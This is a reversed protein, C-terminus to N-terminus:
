KLNEPYTLYSILKRLAEKENKQYLKGFHVRNLVIYAKDEPLYFLADLIKNDNDDLLTMEESDDIGDYIDRSRLKISSENLENWEREKEEEFITKM